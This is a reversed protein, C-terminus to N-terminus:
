HTEVQTPTIKLVLDSAYALSAPLQLLAFRSILLGPLPKFTTRKM